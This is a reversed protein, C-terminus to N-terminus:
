TWAATFCFFYLCLQAIGVSSGWGSRVEHTRAALMAVRIHFGKFTSAVHLFPFSVQSDGVAMAVAPIDFSLQPNHM